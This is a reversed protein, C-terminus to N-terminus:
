SSKGWLKGSSGRLGKTKSTKKAPKDSTSPLDRSETVMQEDMDQQQTTKITKKINAVEDEVKKKIAIQQERHLNAKTIQDEITKLVSDCGNCWDELVKVVDNIQEPRIDRGIAYDVELQQNRQDLKGQIIDAYIVEIILDELERVNKIELEKLLLAYPLCKNKNALSVITLHRLKKLMIPSLEPYNNRNVKYETYDGYAFLNLLQFYSSHPGESLEKINPMDLLEGFVYVAQAELAQRILEVAAAGKATKSLLVFQELPNVPKDSSM